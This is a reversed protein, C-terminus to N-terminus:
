RKYHCTKASLLSMSKRYVLLVNKNKKVPFVKNSALSCISHTHTIAKLQWHNQGQQADPVVIHVLGLGKSHQRIVLHTHHFIQLKTHLFWNIMILPNPKDQETHTHARMHTHTRARAHTHTHLNLNNSGKIKIVLHTHHFIQLKTHLFWNIM